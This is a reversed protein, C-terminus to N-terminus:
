KIGKRELEKKLIFNGNADKAEYWAPNGNKKERIRVEYVAEEQEAEIEGATWEAGTVFVGAFDGNNIMYVFPRNAIFEFFMPSSFAVGDLMEMAVSAAAAETGSEDVKIRAKLYIKEVHASEDFSIMKAFDYSSTFIKQIGWSKFLEEPQPVTYEAEFKPLHLRVETKMFKPQLKHENLHAVFKKFDVSERPLFITMYDGTDYYLRVAQMMKDEYYDLQGTQYMMLVEGDTGNLNYFVAKHTDEVEFPVAWTNNLYVTNVLYLDGAKPEEEPVIDKILGNTKKDVWQNIAATSGPLSWVEAGFAQEMLERYRTSFANGWISNNIQISNKKAEIYNGLQKNVNALHLVPFMKSFELLSEDVLGNALLVSISYVSLPSVIFNDGKSVPMERKLWSAALRLDKDSPAFRLEKDTKGTGLATGPTGKHVASIDSEGALGDDSEMGDAVNDNMSSEEKAVNEKVTEKVDADPEQISEREGSIDGRNEVVFWGPRAYQAVVKGAGACILLFVMIAVFMNRM